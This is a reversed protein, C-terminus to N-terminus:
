RGCGRWWARGPRREAPRTGSGERGAAGPRSLGGAGPATLRRPLSRRRRRRPRAARGRHIPEPVRLRGRRGAGRPRAAPAPAGGGRQGGPTAPRRPCRCRHRRGPRPRPGGREAAGGDLVPPDRAPQMTPLQAGSVRRTLGGATTGGSRPDATTPPRDHLAEGHAPRRAVGLDAAVAGGRAPRRRARGGAADRAVPAHPHCRAATPTAAGPSGAPAGGAEPWVSAGPPRDPRPQAGGSPPPGLWAPPQGGAPLARTDAFSAPPAGAGLSPSGASFSPPGGDPSPSGASFSAPPQGAAPSAPAAAWWPQEGAGGPGNGPRGASRYDRHPGYSPAGAGTGAAPAQDGAPPWAPAPVIAGGPAAPAGGGAAAADTAPRRPTLGPGGGGRPGQGWGPPADPAVPGPGRRRRDASRPRRGVVPRRRRGAVRGGPRGAAGGGDAHGAPPWSAAAPLGATSSAAAAAVGYRDPQVPAPQDAYPRPGEHAGFAAVPEPARGSGPGLAGVPGGAPSLSAGGGPGGAGAPAGVGARLGGAPADGAGLADEPTLLAAPLAVLATIGQGPAPSLRIEIGHRAALNGAVYHGLYKSPAVTFSESGALRRNAQALEAEPMGFGADVIAVSYSGDDRRRGRVEVKEEPPSFTLANELLEALLHALDAAVAGMVLAPEVDRVTAREYTEVEGFAARIVDVIAVPAAWRRPPGIGALVLLSEANRRMRTALHDLRFLAALTDPDAEHAELQTIFDLQRSLLNQNRRGLNTFSDAINRRLVAQEVALDLASDQVTNLADAVDAVEDRTKVRIPTIDPVSVDEGLPTELVELVASPLRRGAMDKAQQTLSRLPKTISRSVLLTLTM